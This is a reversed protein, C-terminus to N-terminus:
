TWVDKSNQGWDSRPAVVMAKRQAEEEVKKQTEKRRVEEKKRRANIYRALAQNDKKAQPLEKEVLSL